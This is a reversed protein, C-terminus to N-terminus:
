GCPVHRWRPLFDFCVGVHKACWRTRGWARPSLSPHAQIFARLPFKASSARPNLCWCSGLTPLHSSVPLCFESGQFHSSLSTLLPPKTSAFHSDQIVSDSTLRRWPQHASPGPITMSKALSKCAQSNVRLPCSRSNGEAPPSCLLQKRGRESKCEVGAGFLPHPPFHCALVVIFYKPSLM